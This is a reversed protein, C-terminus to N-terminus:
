LFREFGEEEQREKESEDTVRWFSEREESKLFGMEFFRVM